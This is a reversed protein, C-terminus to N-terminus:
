IADKNLSSLLSLPFFKTVRKSVNPTELYYLGNKKKALGIERFPLFKGSM